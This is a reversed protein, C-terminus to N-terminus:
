NGAKRIGLFNSNMDAPSLCTLAVYAAQLDPTLSVFDSADEMHCCHCSINTQRPRWTKQFQSTTVIKVLSGPTINKNQNGENSEEPELDEHGEHCPAEHIGCEARRVDRYSAALAYGYMRVRMVARRELEQLPSVAASGPEDFQLPLVLLVARLLLVISFFLM